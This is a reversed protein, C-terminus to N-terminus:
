VLAGPRMRVMPAANKGTPKIMTMRVPASRKVEYTRTLEELGGEEISGVSSFCNEVTAKRWRRILKKSRSLVQTTENKPLRAPISKKM